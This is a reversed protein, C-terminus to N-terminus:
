PGIYGEAVAFNAFDVSTDAPTAWSTDSGGFFTSFLIGEIKLGPVTRFLLNQEDLVLKEDFWVRVRGDRKGPTNLRVEQEILHWKGPRFRWKGRGLSTGHKVSSPLYAYVEGDGNKRWMLRTTFGNTGDPVRGGSGVSGGFLGPLKGGKVFTFGDPFRVYYRLHLADRPALGLDAYFQGGGVPRGANRAVTPSASGRPYHARLLTPFKGAPDKMARLNKLGWSRKRVKWKAMWGAEFGGSWLVRREGGGAHGAPWAAAGFLSLAALPVLRVAFSQKM